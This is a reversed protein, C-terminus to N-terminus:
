VVVDGEMQDPDVHTEENAWVLNHHSNWKILILMLRRIQECWTITAIIFSFVCSVFVYFLSYALSILNCIIILDNYYLCCTIGLLLLCELEIIKICIIFNSESFVKCKRHGRTSQLSTALPNWRVMYLTLGQDDLVM